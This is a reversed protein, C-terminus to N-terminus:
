NDVIQSPDEKITQNENAKLLDLQDKSEMLGELLGAKSWRQTIEERQKLKAIERELNEEQKIMDGACLESGYINWIDMHYGKLELLEKELEAITKCM